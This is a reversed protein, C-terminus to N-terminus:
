ADLGGHRADGLIEAHRGAGGDSRGELGDGLVAPLHREHGVRVVAEEADHGVAVHALREEPASREVRRDALVHVRGGQGSAGPEPAGLRALHHSGPGDPVQGQHVAGAPQHVHDEEVVQERAVGSGADATIMAPPMPVRSRGSVSSVGFGSSRTPPRGSTSIRMSRSACHPTSSTATATCWLDSMIRACSPSPARKPTRSVYTSSGSRRPVM